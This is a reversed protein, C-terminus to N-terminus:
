AARSSRVGGDEFFRLPEGTTGGTNVIRLPGLGLRSTSPLAASDRKIIAKDIVPFQALVRLSVFGEVDIAAGRIVDRYFPVSQMCHRLLARLKEVQLHEMEAASYWQTKAYLQYL